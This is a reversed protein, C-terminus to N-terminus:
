KNKHHHNNDNLLMKTVTSKKKEKPKAIKVLFLFSSATHYVIVRILPESIAVCGLM